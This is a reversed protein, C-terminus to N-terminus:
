QNSDQQDQDQTKDSQLRFQGPLGKGSELPLLRNQHMSEPDMFLTEFETRFLSQIISKLSRVGEAKIDMIMDIPLWQALEALSGGTEPILM